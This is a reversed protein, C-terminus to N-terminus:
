GFFTDELAIRRFQWPLLERDGRRLTCEGDENMGVDVTILEHESGSQHVNVAKITEDVREFVVEHSERRRISFCNPSVDNYELAHKLTPNHEIRTKMDGVIDASLSRFASEARCDNRAKVWDFESM